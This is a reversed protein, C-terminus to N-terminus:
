AKCTFPCLAEQLRFINVISAHKVYILILAPSELKYEIVTINSFFDHWRLEQILILCRLSCWYQTIPFLVHWFRLLKKSWKLWSYVRCMRRVSRLSSTLGVEAKYVPEWMTGDNDRIETDQFFFGHKFMTIRSACGIVFQAIRSLMRKAKENFCKFSRSMTLVKILWDSKSLNM